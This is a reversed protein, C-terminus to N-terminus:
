HSLVLQVGELYDDTVPHVARYDKEELESDMWHAIFTEIESPRMRAGHRKLTLFVRHIRAQWQASKLTAEDKNDTSLSRWLQERGKFYPRLRRPVISRHDFVHRKPHLFPTAM